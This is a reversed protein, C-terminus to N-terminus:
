KNLPRGTVSQKLLGQYVPLVESDCASHLIVEWYLFDNKSKRFKSGRWVSTVKLKQCQNFIKSSQTLGHIRTSKDAQYSCASASVVSSPYNPEEQSAFPLCLVPIHWIGWKGNCFKEPFSNYTIDMTGSLYLDLIISKWLWKKWHKKCQLLLIWRYVFLVFFACISSWYM